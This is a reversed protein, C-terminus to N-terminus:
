RMPWNTSLAWNYETINSFGIGEEDAPMSDMMGNDHNVEADVLHTFLNSDVDMPYDLPGNPYPYAFQPGMYNTPQIQNPWSPAEITRTGSSDFALTNSAPSKSLDAFFNGNPFPPLPYQLQGHSLARAETQTPRSTPQNSTETKAQIASAYISDALRDIDEQRSEIHRCPEIDEHQVHGSNHPVTQQHYWIRLKAVINVFKSALVLRKQDSLSAVAKLHNLVNELHAAVKCVNPDLVKTLESYPTSASLSLKILVVM